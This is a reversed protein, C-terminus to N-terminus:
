RTEQAKAPLLKAYERYLDTFEDVLEYCFTLVRQRWRANAMGCSKAELTLPNPWAYKEGFYEAFAELLGMHRLVRAHTAFRETEEYDVKIAVKRQYFARLHKKLMEEWSWSMNKWEYVCSEQRQEPLETVEALPKYKEPDSGVMLCVINYARQLDLSHEGYFTLANQEKKDRKASLFWGKTVEMLVRESFWQGMNLATVIAFSDAADEERGLVPMNMENIVGHGLEHAVVFLTNGVVFEVLRQKTEPPLDKLHPVADLAKVAEDIGAFIRAKHPPVQAPQAIVTPVTVLLAAAALAALLLTRVSIRHTM